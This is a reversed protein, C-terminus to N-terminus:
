KKNKFETYAKNKMDVYTDMGKGKLETVFADFQSL